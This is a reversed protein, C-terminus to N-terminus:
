CSREIIRNASESDFPKARTRLTGTLIKKIKCHEEKNNKPLMIKVVAHEQKKPLLISRVNKKM